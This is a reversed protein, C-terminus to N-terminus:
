AAERRLARALEHRARYTRSKITGLPMRHVKAAGTVGYRLVALLAHRYKPHVALLAIRLDRGSIDGIANPVPQDHGALDQWDTWDPRRKRRRLEDLLCNWLIRYFWTSWQARGDYSDRARWAKLYAEQCVDEAANPGVRRSLWLVLRRREHPTLAADLSTVRGERDAAGHSATVHSRPSFGSVSRVRACSRSAFANRRVYSELDPQENFDAHMVEAPLDLGRRGNLLRPKMGLQRAPRKKTPRSV